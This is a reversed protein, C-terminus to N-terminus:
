GNDHQRHLLYLIERMALDAAEMELEKLGLAKALSELEGTYLTNLYLEKIASKMVASHSESIGFNSTLKGFMKWFSVDDLPQLYGIVTQQQLKALYNAVVRHRKDTDEIAMIREIKDLEATFHAWSDRIYESVDISDSYTDYIVTVLADSASDGTFLSRVEDDTLQGMVDRDLLDTFIESKERADAVVSEMIHEFFYPKVLMIFEKKQQFILQGLEELGKQDAFRRTIAEALGDVVLRRQEKLAASRALSVNAFVALMLMTIAKITTM